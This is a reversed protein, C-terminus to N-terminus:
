DHTREFVALGIVGLVVAFWLTAFRILYTAVTAASESTFVGFLLLAGIMSGETVGLGGPLFSVAGLITTMSFVFASLNLGYEVPELAGVIWYFALAEMSWSVASLGTTVILPRWGLLRQMSGYAEDLRARLKGVVPVKELVDLLRAVMAPSQLVFMGVALVGLVGFFAVRGYDFMGIGFAAIVFLGFLDTLREAVVIPATTAVSIGHSRHLLVSKLVEGVKGPTISMTLGAVFVVVSDAVGVDVDICRLYYHWKAWRFCYNVVSLGLAALFIPVPFRRLHEGLAEFDSFAAFAGYVIVGFVIGWVVRRGLRSTESQSM